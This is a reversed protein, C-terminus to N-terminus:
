FQTQTKTQMKFLFHMKKTQFYYKVVLDSVDYVVNVPVMNKEPVLVRCRVV